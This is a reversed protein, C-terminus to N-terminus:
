LIYQQTKSSFSSLRYHCYTLSYGMNIIFLVIFTKKEIKTGKTFITLQDTTLSYGSKHHLDGFGVLPKNAVSQLCHAYQGPRNQISLLSVVKLYLICALLNDAQIACMQTSLPLNFISCFSFLSCTNEYTVYQSRTM